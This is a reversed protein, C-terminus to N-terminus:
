HTIRASYSTVHAQVSSCQVHACALVKVVHALIQTRIRLCVYLDPAKKLGRPAIQMYIHM